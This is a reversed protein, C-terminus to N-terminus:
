PSRGLGPILSEDSADETNAVLNKVLSGGPMVMLFTRSNCCKIIAVCKIEHPSMVYACNHM